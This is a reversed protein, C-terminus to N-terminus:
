RHTGDTDAVGLRDLETKFSRPDSSRFRQALRHASKKTEDLAERGKPFYRQAYSPITKEDHTCDHM